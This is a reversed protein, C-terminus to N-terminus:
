PFITSEPFHDFGLIVAAIGFHTRDMLCQLLAKMLLDFLIIKEVTANKIGRM